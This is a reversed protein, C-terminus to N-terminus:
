ACGGRKEELLRLRAELRAVDDRLTAADERWAAVAPASPLWRREERLYEGGTTLGNDFLRGAWGRLERALGGLRHAVPDGLLRAVHEEWDVDLQQFFRQFSQAVEVQGSIRVDGRRVPGQDGLGLRLLSLPAGHITADVEGDWAPALTLRGAVPVVTLTTGLGTLDIALIRGDLRHLRGEAEPDLALAANIARELGAATTQILEQM